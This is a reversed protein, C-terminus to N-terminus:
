TFLFLEMTLMSRCIDVKQLSFRCFEAESKEVVVDLFFFDICHKEFIIRSHNNTADEVALCQKLLTQFCIVDDTETAVKSDFWSNHEGYTM